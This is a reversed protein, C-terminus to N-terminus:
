RKNTNFTSTDPSDSVPESLRTKAGRTGAVYRRRKLGHATPSDSPATTKQLSKVPSNQYLSCSCHTGGGGVRRGIISQWNPLNRQLLHRMRKEFYAHFKQKMRLFLQWPFITLQKNLSTETARYPEAYYRMTVYCIINEIAISERFTKFNCRVVADSVYGVLM